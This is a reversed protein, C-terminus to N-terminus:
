AGSAQRSAQQAAAAYGLTVEVKNSAFSTPLRPYRRTCFRAKAM